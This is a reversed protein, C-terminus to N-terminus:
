SLIAQAYGAEEAEKLAAAIKKVLWAAAEADDDFEARMFEDAIDKATREASLRTMTRHVGYEDGPMHRSSGVLALDPV